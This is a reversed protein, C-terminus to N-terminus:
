NNEPNVGEQLLMDRLKRAGIPKGQTGLENMFEKWGAVFEAHGERAERLLQEGLSEASAGAEAGDRGPDGQQQEVTKRLKAM